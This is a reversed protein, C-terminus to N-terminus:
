LGIELAIRDRHYEPGGYIAANSEVRRMYLHLDHEWTYGIGGHLQLCERLIVPCRDAVYAKALSAITPADQGRQVAEIAAATVAKCTELWLLMDALRHKLAQYSGIPRGFAKRDKTYQLTIEYARDAVGVTEACQLALALACQLQLEDESGAVAGVVASAPVEAGNFEVRSFRRTLDIGELTKVSVKSTDTPVLLQTVGESSRATVLIRDALHADQVPSKVGTIRFGGDISEARVAGSEAEWQDGDEAVAWAAVARGEAIKQLFENSVRAPEQRGLAFAVINTPLVPGSFIVRGLEEAIIALDSVGDGSVSGGGMAEPILMSTWGLEAGEGWVARDFGLPDDILGRIAASSWTADLYKHTTQQFLVQDETLYLDM